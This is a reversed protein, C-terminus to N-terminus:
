ANGCDESASRPTRGGLRAIGLHLEMLATAAAHRLRSPLTVLTQAERRLADVDLAAAEVPTIAARYRDHGITLTLTV